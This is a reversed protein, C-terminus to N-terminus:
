TFQNRSVRNMLRNREHAGAMSKLTPLLNRDSHETM